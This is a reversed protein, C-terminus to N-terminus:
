GPVVKKLTPCFATAFHDKMEKSEKGSYLPLLYSRFTPLVARLLM